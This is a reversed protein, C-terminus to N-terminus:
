RHRNWAVALPTAAIPLVPLMLFSSFCFVAYLLEQPLSHNKIMAPVLMGYFFGAALLLWVALCIWCTSSRVMKRQRAVLFSGLTAALVVTSYTGFLVQWALPEWSESVLLNIALTALCFTAMVGSVLIASAPRRLLVVMMGNASLTWCGLAWLFTLLTLKVSVPIKLPGFGDKLCNNLAPRLLDDGWAWAVAGILGVGVIWLACATSTSKALNRLLATAWQADTLPLAADFSPFNQQESRHGLYMGLLFFSMAGLMSFGRGMEITEQMRPALLLLLCGYIVLGVAFLIPITRGRERWERCRLASEGTAFRTPLAADSQSSTRSLASWLSALTPGSGMRQLRAAYFSGCVGGSGAVALTILEGWTVNTWSQMQSSALGIAADTEYRLALWWAGLLGLPAFALLGLAQSPYTLWAVAQSILYVTVIALLPGRYPWAVEFLGNVAFCILAYAAAAALAGGASRTVVLQWTTIPLAYERSQTPLWTLLSGVIGVIVIGTLAVQVMAMDPFRQWGHVELAMLPGYIFLPLLMLMPLMVVLQWGRSRWYDITVAWMAHNM